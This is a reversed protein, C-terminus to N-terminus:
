KLWGKGLFDCSKFEDSVKIYTVGIKKKIWDDYTKSRKNMLAADSLNQYDDKLNARHAPLENDLRVIRFVENNNEDITRFPESIEGVKLDRVQVYMQPNLEELTFWTDRESPNTSVFKGGNIRSDKHSSMRRAVDEFKLSDRRILNTLSDLTNMAKAAQEPKVKPRILIHRTNIMDGNRDIMQIIHFGYKTEIIRSVTNKTLSFAEDAYPKELEGRLSYGLEGGRKATGPDESYLVALASFSKGALIQGRIDLLRQRAEAKNEENEPPDLQIISIQVKAPIVPLSDKPISSFFKKLENPTIKINEAISAQVENVIQQDVLAKRIDRRIEIMSKKFYAELAKESGSRRIADNIRANLENEVMDDTVEISDIRAQDLFLKSVLLERLVNCRLEDIPTRNGSSRLDLVMNEIDSLYVVENGVIAAVSEVLVQSKIESIGSLLFVAVILLLGSGRRIM